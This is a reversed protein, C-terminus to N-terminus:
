GLKAIAQKLLGEINKKDDKIFVQELLCNEKYFRDLKGEIIKPIIHEPKGSDKAQQEFIKKEGALVDAPVSDRDLYTPNMAAVQMCIDQSLQQFDDTRAVFDTECNIELLVGIKGNGHIYSTVVGEKAVRDAKKAAKAAGKMRLVEVAKEIDGASETLAKKCEMLGVGTRERLTKVMQASISM